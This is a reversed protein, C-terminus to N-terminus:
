WNNLPPAQNAAWLNVSLAGAPYARTAWPDFGKPATFGYPNITFTRGNNHANTGTTATNFTLTEALRLASNTTRFVGFHLHVTDSCGTSGAYGLLQGKAVTQGVSVVYSSFHAYYTVFKEYYAPNPATIVHEIAVEKQAKSDSGNPNGPGCPSQYDRAMVVKGAAAAYIRTNRAVLLDDGDHNDIFKLGERCRGVSDVITCANTGPQGFTSPNLTNYPAKAFDYGTAHYYGSPASTRFPNDFIPLARPSAVFTCFTQKANRAANYAATLPGNGTGVYVVVWSQSSNCRAVVNNTGSSSYLGRHRITYGSSGRTATGCPDGNGTSDSTFSWGGDPWTVSCYVGVSSAPIAAHAPAAPISLLGAALTLATVLL